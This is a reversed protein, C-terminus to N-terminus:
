KAKIAFDYAQIDVKGDTYMVVAYEGPPLPDKPWIKYLGDDLQRHLYDMMTRDELVIDKTLPHYTLNEVIRIGGKTTLKAIGFAETGEVQVFFEPEPDTFVTEAHAGTMELTAKGSLVPIPTLKQLISRGKDSHVAVEGPKLSKTQGADLWYVGVDQPIKSAEKRVEAEAANEEDIVKEESKLTQERDAVEAKTRKLDVLTLPVEEWDDREVSYFKVRDNLVQYERVLQYSGDNLYLKVNAAWGLAAAALLVLCFRRM